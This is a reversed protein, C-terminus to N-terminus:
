GPQRSLQRIREQLKRVRGEMEQKMFNAQQQLKTYEERLQEHADVTRHWLDVLTERPLEHAKLSPKFSEGMVFGWQGVM